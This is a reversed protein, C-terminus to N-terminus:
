SIPESPCLIVVGVGSCDASTCTQLTAKKMKGDTELFSTNTGLDSTSIFIPCMEEDCKFCKM